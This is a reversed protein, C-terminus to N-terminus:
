LKSKLEDLEKRVKQLEALLYVSLLDYRVSEPIGEKDLPVIEPIYEFVDEAILGISKEKSGKFIFSCPELNLVKSTDSLPNIDDKFRRSSSAPGMQGTSSDYVVSTGNIAALSQGGVNTGPFHLCVNGGGIRVGGASTANWGMAIHATNGTSNSVSAAGSGIAIGRQVGPSIVGGVNAGSGITIAESSVTNAGNGIVVAGSQGTTSAKASYGLVVSNSHNCTIDGAGIGVSNSGSVTPAIANGNTVILVSNNGTVSANGGGIGISYQGSVTMPFGFGAAYGGIAIAGTNSARANCGIAINQDSSAEAGFGIAVNCTGGGGSKNATANLGICTNNNGTVLGSGSSGGILVNGIGTTLTINEGVVVNLTGTSLNQGAVAGILVNTDGTSLNQGAGYGILTNVSGSSPNSIINQGAGVGLFTSSANSSTGNTAVLHVNTPPDLVICDKLDSLSLVPPNEKLKQLCDECEANVVEFNPLSM